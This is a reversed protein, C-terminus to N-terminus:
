GRLNYIALKLSAKGAPIFINLATEAAFIKDQGFRLKGYLQLLARM